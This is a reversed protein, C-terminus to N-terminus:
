EDGAGKTTRLVRLADDSASECGIDRLRDAALSLAARLQKVQAALTVQEPSPEDDWGQAEVYANVPAIADELAISYDSLVDEGNGLILLVFGVYKGDKHAELTEMDSHGMEAFIAEADTSCKIPYAEGDNVSIDYGAALLAAVVKKSIATEIKRTDM